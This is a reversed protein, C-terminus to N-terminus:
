NLSVITLMSYNKHKTIQYLYKLGNTLARTDGNVKTFGSTTITGASAGNTVEIVITYEGSATPANLTFAGNANLHQMNGNVPDPTQATTTITGLDYSSSKFGGTLATNLAFSILNSADNYTVTINTHTGAAIMTAIADMANEDTYQTITTALTITDAGDNVTVTMGTGAVLATGIADRANEDTYTALGSVAFDFSNSVDNYTITINTHSGAAFAAALADQAMEDTYQTVTVAFDMSNAGDNNTITIGTHSGAAIMAAIDDRANESTYSGTAAFDFSNSGDNYTITIGTHSGAAFAAALADQANEDTYSAAGSGVKIALWATKTVKKVWLLTQAANMTLSGNDVGNLTVGAPVQFTKTGSGAYFFINESNLPIAATGHAPGTITQNGARGLVYWKRNDGAVMTYAANNKAAYTFNSKDAVKSPKWTIDDTGITFPNPTIIQVTYGGYSGEQVTAFTGSVIPDGDDWGDARDWQGAARVIYRLNEAKNTQGNLIVEDGDLLDEGQLTIEGGTEWDVNGTHVYLRVPDQYATSSDEDATLPNWADGDFSYYKGTTENFAITGKRAAIYAWDGDDQILFKNSNAGTTFIYIDGDTPSGPEASVFDIFSAQCILSLLRLNVDMEDKWGDYGLPWYGTLGLGPLTRQAM